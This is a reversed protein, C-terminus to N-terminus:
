AIFDFRIVTIYDKSREKLANNIQEKLDKRCQCMDYPVAVDFVLKPKSAGRVIRFDHVSLAPDITSVIEELLARMENWEDDNVVVPDYHIVLHVNLESLAGAELEDIIDHCYLPDEDADMEVHLTAFSQGPGYDHVLLDHVGLVNPHETVLANIRKVLDQDAQKGLLPSITEGAISVGSRLIFLAVALGLFADVRLGSFYEVLCGILVASSAIVDNRSDASTAKLATSHIRKALKGFFVSMWIKVGISVVLIGLAILTFETSAPRLIKFFSTKALEYGIVLILAAVALGSIYEYRAHGYPHEADAPKQAMRFGWLTVVSSSADSLNNVGDAIIAVSGSVIGVIVKGLFLLVNCLIGVVGALKGIAARVAPCDHDNHEKIFIRLLLDTM